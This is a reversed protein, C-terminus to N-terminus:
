AMDECNAGYFHRLRRDAFYNQDPVSTVTVEGTTEDVTVTTAKGGRLTTTHKKTTTRPAHTHTRTTTTNTGTTNPAVVDEKPAAPQAPQGCDSRQLKGECDNEYDPAECPAEKGNIICVSDAHAAAAGALTLSGAAITLAALALLRRATRYM